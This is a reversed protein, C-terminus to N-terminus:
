DTIKLIVSVQLLYSMSTYSYSILLMLVTQAQATGSGGPVDVNGMGALWGPNGPIIGPNIGRERYGPFKRREGPERTGTYERRPHPTKCKLQTSINGLARTIRSAYIYVHM